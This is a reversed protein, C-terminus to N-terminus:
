KCICLLVVGVIVLTPVNLFCFSLYMFSLDVSYFFCFSEQVAAEEEALLFNLLMTTVDFGVASECSWCNFAVFGQYDSTAIM